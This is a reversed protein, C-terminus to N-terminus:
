KAPPRIMPGNPKPINVSGCVMMWVASSPTTINKNMIPRSICGDCKHLRLRCIKPSPDKCTNPAVAKIINISLINPTDHCTANTPADPNTSVEVAITMCVKPSFLPNDVALPWLMTDMKNNSSKSITGSNAMTAKKDGTTCVLSVGAQCAIATANPENSANNITPRTSILGNNVISALVPTRSIIVAAANNTTSPDASSISSPPRDIAIPANTAPTSNDSDLKRCWSSASISGKRPRKSPKNKKPTPIASSKDM